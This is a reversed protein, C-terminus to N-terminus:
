AAAGASARARNELRATGAVDLPMQGVHLEGLLSEAECRADAFLADALDDVEEAAAFAAGARQEAGGLRTLQAAHVGIIGSDMGYEGIVFLGGGRLRDAAAPDRLAGLDRLELPRRPAVAFDCCATATDFQVPARCRASTASPTPGPSSTIQGDIDNMAM